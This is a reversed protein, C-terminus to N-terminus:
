RCWPSLSGVEVGGQVHQVISYNVTCECIYRHKFRRLFSLVLLGYSYRENLLDGWAVPSDGPSSDYIVKCEKISHTNKKEAKNLAARQEAPM